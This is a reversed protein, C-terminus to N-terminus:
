RYGQEEAMVDLHATVVDEVLPIAPHGAVREDVVKLYRRCANCCEVRHAPDDDMTFLRAKPSEDNDCFPCRLRDFIWETNCLFCSLFRRGDDVALRAIAPESGCVPCTGHRWSGSDVLDRYFGAHHVYFPSLVTRLLTLLVDANTSIVRALHRIFSDMNEMMENLAAEINEPAMTKSALLRDLASRTSEEPSLSRLEQIGKRFLAPAVPVSEKEFLPRGSLLKENVELSNFHRETSSKDACASIEDKLSSQFELMKRLIDLSERYQPLIESYRVIETYVSNMSESM